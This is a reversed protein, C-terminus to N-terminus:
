ILSGKCMYFDMIFLFTCCVLHLLDDSLDMKIGADESNSGGSKEADTDDRKNTANRPSENGGDNPILSLGFELAHDPNHLLKFHMHEVSIPLLSSDSGFSTANVGSHQPSERCFLFVEILYKLFLICSVCNSSVGSIICSFCIM